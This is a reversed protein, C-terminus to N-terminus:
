RFHSHDKRYCNNCIYILIIIYFNAQSLTQFCTYYFHQKAFRKVHFFILFILHLFFSTLISAFRFQRVIVQITELNHGRNIRVRLTSRLFPPLGVFPMSVSGTKKNFILWGHYFHLYGSSPCQCMVYIVATDTNQDVYFHLYGSSPCQCVYYLGLFLWLTIYFHLYGSSPCQCVEEKLTRM